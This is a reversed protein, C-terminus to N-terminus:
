GVCALHMECHMWRGIGGLVWAAGHMIGGVLMGWWQENWMDTKSIKMTCHLVFM